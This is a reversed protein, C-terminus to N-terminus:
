SRRRGHPRAGRAAAHRPSVRAVRRRRAHARGGRLARGRPRVGRAGRERVAAGVRVADRLRNGDAVRRRATGRRLLAGGLPSGRGLVLLLAIGAVPHPIVLPLDMIAALLAKGRFDTARALVRDADRRRHRAADGTTATLATLLAVAALEADTGLAAIGRVGGSAVLGAVPASSSCCFSRRSSPSSSRRSLGRRSRAARPFRSRVRM